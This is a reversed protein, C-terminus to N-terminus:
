YMIQKPHRGGKTIGEELAAAEKWVIEFVADSLGQAFRSKLVAKTQRQERWAAVINAALAKSSWKPIPAAKPVSKLFNEVSKREFLICGNLLPGYYQEKTVGKSKNPSEDGNGVTGVTWDFHHGKSVATTDSSFFDKGLPITAGGSLLASAYGQSRGFAWCLESTAESLSEFDIDETPTEKSYGSQAFVANGLLNWVESAPITDSPGFMM